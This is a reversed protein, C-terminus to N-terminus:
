LQNVEHSFSRQYVQQEFSRQYVQHGRIYKGIFAGVIADIVSSTATATTLVQDIYSAVAAASAGSQVMILVSDVMTQVDTASASVSATDLINEVAGSLLTDTVTALTQITTILSEVRIAVDAVSGTSQAVSQLSEISNVIDSVSAQVTISDTIIESVSSFLDDIVSGTGTASTLLTEVAAIADSVTDTAQITSLLSEVRSAIATLSVSTTATDYLTEEYTTGGSVYAVAGVQGGTHGATATASNTPVFGATVYDILDSIDYRSDHGDTGWTSFKALADSYTTVSADFQQCFKIFNRSSDVFQPDAVTDNAGPTNQYTGDAQDYYLTGTLNYQWNYDAAIVSDSFPHTFGMICGQQSTVAFFINDQVSKYEGVQANIGEGAVGCFSLDGATSDAAVTNNEFTVLPCFVNVGDSPTMGSYNYPASRAKGDAGALFISNKVSHDFNHDIYTSTAGNGQIISNNANGGYDIDFIWGDLATEIGQMYFNHYNM